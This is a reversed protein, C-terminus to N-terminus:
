RAGARPESLEPLEESEDDDSVSCDAAEWPDTGDRFDGTFLGLGCGSLRFDEPLEAVALGVLHSYLIHSSTYEKYVGMHM